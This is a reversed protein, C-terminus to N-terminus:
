TIQALKPCPDTVHQITEVSSGCPCRANTMANPDKIFYKLYNGTSIVEDQIAFM